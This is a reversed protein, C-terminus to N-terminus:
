RAGRLPKAGAVAEAAERRLCFGKGACPLVGVKKLIKSPVGLFIKLIKPTGWVDFDFFAFKEDNFLSSALVRVGLGWVM